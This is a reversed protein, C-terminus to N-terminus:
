SAAANPQHWVGLAVLRKTMWRQARERLPLLNKRFGFLGGLGIFLYSLIGKGPTPAPATERTVTISSIVVNASTINNWEEYDGNSTYYYPSWEGGDATSYLFSQIDFYHEGVGPPYYLINDTQTFGDSYLTGAPYLGTIASGNRQGTIGSILYQNSSQLTATITGSASFGSGSYSFDFVDAPARGCAFALTAVAAILTFVVHRLQAGRRNVHLM